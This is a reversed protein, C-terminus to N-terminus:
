TLYNAITPTYVKRLATNRTRIKKMETIAGSAEEAVVSVCNLPPAVEYVCVKLPLSIPRSTDDRERKTSLHGRGLEVEETLRAGRCPAVEGVVVVETADTCTLPRALLRITGIRFRVLKSVALSSIQEAFGVLLTAFKRLLLSSEAAFEAVM